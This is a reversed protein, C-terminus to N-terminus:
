DPWVRRSPLLGTPTDDTSPRSAAPKTSTSSSKPKSAPVQKEQRPPTQPKEQDERVARVGAALKSQIDSM